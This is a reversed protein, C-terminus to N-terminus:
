YTMIIGQDQAYFSCLGACPVIRVDAHPWKARIGHRLLRAANSNFCHSIYVARSGDFGTAAIAHELEKKLTVCSYIIRKSM